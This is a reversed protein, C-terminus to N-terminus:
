EDACVSAPDACSRMQWVDDPGAVGGSGFLLTGDHGNSSMDPVTGGTLSEFTYYVVLGLTPVAADPTAVPLDPALDPEAEPGVDLGADLSSDSGGAVTGGSGTMGASGSLGGAGTSGAVGLGGDAAPSGGAGSIEADPGTGAGGSGGTGGAGALLGDAGLDLGAGASDEQVLPADREPGLQEDYASDGTGGSGAQGADEPVEAGTATAGGLGGYGEIVGGAGGDIVTSDPLDDGSAGIGGSGAPEGSGGSGAASSAQWPPTLDVCGVCVLATAIVIKMARRPGPSHQM